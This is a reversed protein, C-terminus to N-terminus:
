HLQLQERPRYNESEPDHGRSPDCRTCSVVPNQRRQPVPLEERQRFGILGDAFEKVPDVVPGKTLPVAATRTDELGEVFRGLDRLTLGLNCNAEAFAPELEVTKRYEILAEDLQCNERLAGGLCYHAETLEPKRAAAERCEAIAEELKGSWRLAEGFVPISLLEVKTMYYITRKSYIGILAPDVPLGALAPNPRTEAWYCAGVGAFFLLACVAFLAWGQRADGAMIGYTYTLAAPIALSLTALAVSTRM